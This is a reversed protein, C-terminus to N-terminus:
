IGVGPRRRRLTAWVNSITVSSLYNYDVVVRPDGGYKVAVKLADDQGTIALVDADAAWAALALLYTAVLAGSPALNGEVTPFMYTRTTRPFTTPAKWTVLAAVQNPLRDGGSNGTWAGATPIIQQTPLEAQDVRRVDYGWVSLATSMDSQLNTKYAADLADVAEQLETADPVYNPFEFHHINRFQEGGSTQCKVVFQYISM